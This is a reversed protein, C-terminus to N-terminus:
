IIVAGGTYTNGADQLRIQGATQAAGATMNFKNGNIAVNAAPMTANTYVAFSFAIQDFNTTFTFENNAIVVGTVAGLTGAGAQTFVFGHSETFTNNTIVVADVVGTGDVASNTSVFANEVIELGTIAAAAGMDIAVPAQATAEGTFTNRNIKLTTVAGASSLVGTMAANAAMNFTNGDITWGTTAAGLDIGAMGANAANMTFTNDKVTWSDVAAGIDIGVMAGAANAMAFTNDQVTFSNSGAATISIGVSALGSTLTFTNDSVTWGTSAATMSIAPIAAGTATFTNDTIVWNNNGAAGSLIFPNAGAAGTFTNGDITVGTTTGGNGSIVATSAANPQFTIGTITANDATAALTIMPVAGAQGIIVPTVGTKNQITTKKTIALTAGEGAAGLTIPGATIIQIVDGDATALTLAKTVTLVATGETTGGNADNGAAPDVYYTAAQAGFVIGFTMITVLLSMLVKRSM